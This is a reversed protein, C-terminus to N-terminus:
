RRKVYVKDYIHNSEVEQLRQPTIERFPGQLKLFIAEPGVFWGVVIFSEDYAQYQDHAAVHFTLTNDGNATVHGHLQETVAHVGGMGTTAGEFAEQYDGSADISFADSINVGVFGVYQGNSNAYSSVAGDGRKWEGAFDGQALIRRAPPIKLDGSKYYEPQMVGDAGTGAAPEVSAITLNTCTQIEAGCRQAVCSQDTCSSMCQLVAHASRSSEVTTRQDCSTMCAQTFPNCQTYCQLTDKCSAAPSAATSAGWGGSAPRSAQPQGQYADPPPQAPIICGALAFLAFSFTRTM